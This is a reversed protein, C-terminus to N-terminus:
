WINLTNINTELMFRNMLNLFNFTNKNLILHFIVAHTIFSMVVYVNNYQCLRSKPRRLNSQVIMKWNKIVRHCCM